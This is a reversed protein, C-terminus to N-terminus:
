GMGRIRWIAWGLPDTARDPPETEEAPSPGTGQAQTSENNLAELAPLAAAAPPGIDGLLRIVEWDVDGNSQRVHRALM